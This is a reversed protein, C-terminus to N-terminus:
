TALARLAAMIREEVGADAPVAAQSLALARRAEGQSYGLAVLAELAEGQAGSVPALMVAGRDGAEVRGRLELVIREATRRGVGPARTLTTVDEDAIAARLAAPEMASLLALAVRPGVGSVGLLLGFLAIADRDAAGVLLWENERVVLHTHLTVATGEPGLDSLLSTPVHVRYGVGNVDLVVADAEVGVVRGHLRAIM